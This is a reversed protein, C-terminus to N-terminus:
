VKDSILTELLDFGKGWGNDMNSMMKTFCAIEAETADVPIQELQVKTKDGKDVFSVTTLLTKPWDPMMQSPQINWDKDTSSHNWVMRRATEVEIFDMRSFDSKEGWKMENLWRGGAKPDFEHIITEVGPGYWVALLTPDTWAKWIKALPAEFGRNYKYVPLNSM